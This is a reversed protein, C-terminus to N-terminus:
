KLRGGRIGEAGAMRLLGGRSHGHCLAIALADAADAQPKNKLCLLIKVMHQVQLKDAHGKGVAAQKVQNATYEFVDLGKEVFAIMASARAQGLKIVSDANKHMFTREIAAEVPKHETIVGGIREFIFHLKEAPSDSKIRIAGHAVHVAHNGDMDIIGYGTIVSGPDIGLIRIIPSNNSTFRSVNENTM